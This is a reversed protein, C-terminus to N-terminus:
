ENQIVQQLKINEFFKKTKDLLKRFCDDLMETIFFYILFSLLAFYFPTHYSKTHRMGSGLNIEFGM